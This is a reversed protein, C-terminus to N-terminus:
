EEVTPPDIDTDVGSLTDEPVEPELRDEMSSLLITMARRLQSGSGRTKEERHRDVAELIPPEDDVLEDAEEDGEEGDLTRSTLGSEVAIEM